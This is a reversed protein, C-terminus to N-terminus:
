NLKQSNRLEDNLNELIYEDSMLHLGLKPNSLQKYIQTTYFLNLARETLMRYLVSYCVYCLSCNRYNSICGKGYITLVEPSAVALAISAHRSSSRLASHSKSPFSILSRKATSMPTSSYKRLNVHTRYLKFCRLNGTMSLNWKLPPNRKSSVTLPLPQCPM